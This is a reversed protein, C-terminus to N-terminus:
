CTYAHMHVIDNLRMLPLIKAPWFCLKAVLFFFILRSRIFLFYINIIMFASTSLLYCPQLKLIIFVMLSLYFSDIKFWYIIAGIQWAYIQNEVLAILYERNVFKFSFLSDWRQLSRLLNPLIGCTWVTRNIRRAHKMRPLTWVFGAQSRALSFKYFFSFHLPFLLCTWYLMCDGKILDM